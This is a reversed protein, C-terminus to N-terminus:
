CSAQRENGINVDGSADQVLVCIVYIGAQDSSIQGDVATTLTTGGKPPKVAACGGSPPVVFVTGSSRNQDDFVM